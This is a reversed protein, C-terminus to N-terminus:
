RPPELWEKRERPKPPPRKAGGDAAPPGEREITHLPTVSELTVIFQARCLPCEMLYGTVIRRVNRGALRQWWRARDLRSLELRAINDQRQDRPCACPIM